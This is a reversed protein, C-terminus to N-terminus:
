RKRFFDSIMAGMTAGFSDAIVDAISAYRNPVFSQHIEDTVAYFVAITIALLLPNNKVNLSRIAVLLLFGFGMYEIFHIVLPMFDPGPPMPPKPASSLLFIMGAYLVTLNCAIKPKSELWRVIYKM